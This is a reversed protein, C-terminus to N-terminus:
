RSGFVGYKDQVANEGTREPNKRGLPLGRKEVKTFRGPIGETANNWQSDRQGPLANNRTEKNLQANLVELIRKEFFRWTGPAVEVGGWRHAYKIITRRDLSLFKGLEQPTITRGYEQELESTM